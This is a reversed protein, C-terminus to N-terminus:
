WGEERQNVDDDAERVLMVCCIMTSSSTIAKMTYSKSRPASALGPGDTSSVPKWFYAPFLPDWGCDGAGVGGVM